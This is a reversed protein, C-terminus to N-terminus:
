HFRVVVFAHITLEHAWTFIMVNKMMPIVDLEWLRLTSLMFKSDVGATFIGELTDRFVFAFLLYLM